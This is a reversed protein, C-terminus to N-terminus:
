SIQVEAAAIVSASDEDGSWSPVDCKTAKWGHHMLQGSVAASGQAVNGTLRWLGSAPNPVEVTSEEPQDVIPAPAFLRDLVERSGRHVERVAAGVQEDTYADISEKLFDVLRAERQLASLLTIADSRQPAVPKSAAAEAPAATDASPTETEPAPLPRDDASLAASVQQAVKGSFLVKLALGLRGM